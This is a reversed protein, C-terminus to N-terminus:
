RAPLARADGRRRRRCAAPRGRANRAGAARRTGRDRVLGRTSGRAAGVGDPADPCRVPSPRRTGTGRGPRATRPCPARARRASGTTGLRRRRTAAVAGDGARRRGRSRRSNGSGPSAVRSSFASFRHRAAPATRQRTRAPAATSPTPRGAPPSARGCRRRTRPRTGRRRTRARPRAGAPPRGRGASAPWRTGAPHEPGGGRGSLPSSVPRVDNIAATLPGFWETTEPGSSAIAASCLSRFARRSLSDQGAIAREVRPQHSASARRKRCRKAPRPEGRRRDAQRRIQRAAPHGVVLGGRWAVPGAAGAASPASRPCSARRHRRPPRSKM